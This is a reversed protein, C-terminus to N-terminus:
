FRVGQAAQRDREQNNETIEVRVFQRVLENGLFVNVNPAIRQFTSSGSLASSAQDNLTAGAAGALSAGSLNPEFFLGNLASQVDRSRSRLGDAFAEATARGSYLTWGTGSFPGKKAPSSPFFDRAASVLSSAASRIGSIQSLMGDIFGRILAAGSSVLVRGMGALQQRAIGPMQGLFRGFEGIMDRVRALFGRAASDSGTILSVGFNYVFRAVSALGDTWAAKQSEILRRTVGAATEQASRMDGNLLAVFTQIIPIVFDRLTDGAMDNFAEVLISLGGVLVTLAPAVVNEVIEAVGRFFFILLPLIQEIINILPPILPIVAEVIAVFAGAMEILVPQLEPIIGLLEEGLVRILEQLPPALIEIVPLLANFAETLIPLVADVLETGLEILAGLADQFGQSATVNALAETVKELSAFLGDGSVQAAGFVNGIIEGINGAVRGLQALADGAGNVADELAGSEFAEGIKTTLNDFVDAITESFRILLPGGAAALRGIAVLVQGPVRSLNGFATTGSRLAKGLSGESGLQQAGTVTNRAMDNFTDAFSRAATRLTPFTATALDRLQGDLGRFLRDQVDIRLADFAPKLKQLELVFARARPSLRELAEALAALDAEPDFVATIAEQVGTLALKLTATAGKLAVFATVGAAAAPAINTVATALGAVLPVAAGAAAGIATMRAAVGALTGAGRGLSSLTSSLRNTERDADGANRVLTPFPDNRDVDDLRNGITNLQNGINQLHDTLIDLQPGLLSGLDGFGDRLTQNIRDSMDSVTTDLRNVARVVSAQDIQVNLQIPPASNEADNVIRRLQVMVQGETRTADVVLNVVADSGAM